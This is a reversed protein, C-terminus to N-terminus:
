WRLAASRPEMAPSDGRGCCRWRMAACFPGSSPLRWLRPNVVEAGCEPPGYCPLRQAWLLAVEDCCLLTWFLPAAPRRPWLGSCLLSRQALQLVAEDDCVPDSVPTRRAVLLAVAAFTQSCFPLVLLVPTALCARVSTCCRAAVSCAGRFLTAGAPLLRPLGVLGWCYRQRRASYRRSSGAWLRVAPWEGCLRAQRTVSTDCRLGGGNPGAALV